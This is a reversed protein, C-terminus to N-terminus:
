LTRTLDKIAEGYAETLNAWSQRTRQSVSLVHGATRMVDQLLPRLREDDDPLARELPTIARQLAAVHAKAAAVVEEELKQVEQYRARM